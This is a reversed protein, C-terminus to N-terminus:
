RTRRPSPRSRPCASVWRIVMFLLRATIEQVSERSSGGGSGPAAVGFGMSGGRGGEQPPPSLLPPPPLLPACPTPRLPPVGGHGRGDQRQELHGGAVERRQAADASPRGGVVGGRLRGKPPQPCLAGGASASPEGGQASGRSCRGGRGPLLAAQVHRLGAELLHPSQRAPPPRTPPPETAPPPPPPPSQGQHTVRRQQGQVQAQTSRERAARNDRHTDCNSDM